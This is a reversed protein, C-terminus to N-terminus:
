ALQGRKVVKRGENTRRGDKRRYTSAFKASFPIAAWGIRYRCTVAGSPPPRPSASM